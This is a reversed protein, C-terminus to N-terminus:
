FPLVEVEDLLYIDPRDAVGAKMMADKLSPDDVFAQAAATDPWETIVVVENPDKVNRLIRAGRSGGKKRSAGHDDFAPKWRAYDQVKHRVVVFTM